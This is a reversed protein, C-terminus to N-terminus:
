DSRIGESNKLQVEVVVRTDDQFLYPVVKSTDTGATWRSSYLEAGTVESLLRVRWASQTKGARDDAFTWNVTISDPDTHISEDAPTLITCHPSGYELNFALIDSDQYGAAGSKVYVKTSLDTSDPPIEEADVDVVYSTESGAIWGSDFYSATDADNTVEVRFWDQPDNQPQYFTWTATITPGGTTITGTPGTVTVVPPDHLPDSGVPETGLAYAGFAPM